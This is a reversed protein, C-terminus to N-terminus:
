MPPLQRAYVADGEPALIRVGAARHGPGESHGCKLLTLWPTAISPDFFWIDRRLISLRIPAPAATAQDAGM